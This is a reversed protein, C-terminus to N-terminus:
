HTKLQFSTNGGQKVSLLNKRIEMEDLRKGTQFMFHVVQMPDYPEKKEHHSHSIARIGGEMTKQVLINTADPLYKELFSEVFALAIGLRISAKPHTRFEEPKDVDIADLFMFLAGYIYGIDHFLDADTTYRWYPNSKMAYDVLGSAWSAAQRDADAELVQRNAYEDDPLPAFEVENIMSIGSESDLWTLHGLVIHAIEHLIIFQLMFHFVFQGVAETRGMAKVEPTLLKAKTTAKLQTPDAAISRAIVSLQVLLGAGIQMTYESPNARNYAVLASKFVRENNKDEIIEITAKVSGGDPLFLSFANATASITPWAENKWASLIEPSVGELSVNTYIIKGRMDKSEKGEDKKSM